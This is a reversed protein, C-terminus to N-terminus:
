KLDQLDLTNENILDNYNKFIERYLEIYSDDYLVKEIWANRMDNM